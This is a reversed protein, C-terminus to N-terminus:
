PASFRWLTTLELSPKAMTALALLATMNMNAKKEGHDLPKLPETITCFIAVLDHTRPQAEGHDGLCAVSDHEYKGEKRRPRSMQAARHHHLFDGYPRSNSAPTRRPRTTQAARNHHLFNWLTTLELSPKAM